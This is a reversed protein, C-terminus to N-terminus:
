VTHERLLSYPPQKYGMPSFAPLYALPFWPGEPIKAGCKMPENM